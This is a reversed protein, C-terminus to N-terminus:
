CFFLTALGGLCLGPGYPMFGDKSRTVVWIGAALVGGIVVGLFLAQATCAAAGAGVMAAIAIDGRAMAEVRGRYILRGLGWLAGFAAFGGAAGALSTWWEVRHVQWGFALGLVLGVVAVVTYVYRTRLDTVAVQILPMAILGAEVWRLWDGGVFFPIAAGVVTATGQVIPDRILVGRLRSVADDSSAAPVDEAPHLWQTLWASAWGLCWGAVGAALGLALRDQMWPWDVNQPM